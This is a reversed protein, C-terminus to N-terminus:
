LSSKELPPAGNLLMMLRSVIPSMARLAAVFYPSLVAMM